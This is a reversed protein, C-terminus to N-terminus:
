LVGLSFWSYQQLRLLCSLDNKCDGKQMKTFFLCSIMHILLELPIIILIQSAIWTTHFLYRQLVQSPENRIFVISYLNYTECINAVSSLVYYISFTLSKTHNEIVYTRKYHHYLLSWHSELVIQFKFNQENKACLPRGFNEENWCLGIM